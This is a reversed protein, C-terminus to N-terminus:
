DFLQRCRDNLSLNFVEHSWEHLADFGTWLAPGTGIPKMSSEIDLVIPVKDNQPPLSMLTARGQIGKEANFLDLVQHFGRLKVGASKPMRPGINLYDRFRLRKQDLPLEFQNIYRLSIREIQDPQFAREHTKWYGKLKPLCKDYGPYPKLWNVVLGNRLMHVVHQKAKNTFKFGTQDAEVQFQAPGNGTTGMTQKYLSFPEPALFGKMEKTLVRSVEGMDGVQPLATQVHYIVEVAPSKPYLLPAKRVAM